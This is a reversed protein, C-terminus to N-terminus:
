TARGILLEVHGGLERSVAERSRTGDLVTVNEKQAISLYLERVARFGKSDNLVPSDSDPRGRNRLRATGEDIDILFGLDPAAIGRYLARIEDERLWFSRFVIDDYWCRDLVVHVGAELLPAIFGHYALLCGGAFVTSVARALGRTQLSGNYVFDRVLPFTDAWDLSLRTFM